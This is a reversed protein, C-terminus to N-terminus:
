SQDTESNALDLFAEVLDLANTESSALGPSVAELDAEGTEIGHALHVALRKRTQPDLALIIQKVTVFLAATFDETSYAYQDGKSM